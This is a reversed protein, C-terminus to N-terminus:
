KHIYFWVYRINCYNKSYLSSFIATKINLINNLQYMSLVNGINYQSFNDVIRAM